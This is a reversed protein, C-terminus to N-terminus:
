TGRLRAGFRDALRRVIGAQLLDVEEDTLTRAPSQFLLAFGVSVEGPALPAGRFLDFLEARALLAGGVERIAEALAGAPVADRVILALDRRVGPFRPLPAVRLGDRPVLGALVECDVEALCVGQPLDFAAAVEPHVEGAQGLLCGGGLIRASRGPHLCADAAPEWAVGSLLLREFVEHLLGKLDYFDYVGRPAAWGRPARAGWLLVALREPELPLEGPRPLYVRGIEFLAQGAEEARRAEAACALVSGRLTTRLVAQDRTMPNALRLAPAPRGSGDAAFRGLVREGVLSYTIVEQLGCGVLLDRLRESLELRPQPVRAPMAGRLPTAPVLDYGILRAVEEVLDAPIAVDTRHSPVTVRLGEGDAECRFALRELTARITGVDLALGLLREVEAPTIALVRPPRQGPYADLIGRAARGGALEVILRTARRLAPLALEPALGKDFRLSAETRLRLARCTRRISAALFNASELLVTTTEPAVESARGGMVGAVAVPQSADAIVLMDFALPRPVGDLTVLSEGPAARRVVIRRGGIRALDFAHLPQGFELMVYNTVDVVSNIPRVGAAGLRAQLWPPSPGIRLGTIVSACYRPCLDPDRIEVAAHTAAPPDAEPYDTAPEAVPAGTLAAVERAVGLLGLCDPRNPTVELDLLVDELLPAVPAGVAAEPPLILIGSQDESLGLEKESCVMGASAIGRIARAAVTTPQGTQGDLVTTGPKAYAVKQGPALNPAGSVVRVRERGLDVTVLHLRDAEPHPDVGVVSGVLIQAWREAQVRRIGGVETGAMTLLHAL